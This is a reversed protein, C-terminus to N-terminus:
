INLRKRGSDTLAIPPFAHNGRCLGPFNQHIMHMVDCFLTVSDSDYRMNDYQRIFEKQKEEGPPNGPVIRPRIVESRNKILSKRVAEASYTVSFKENIYNRVEKVTAPNEYTVSIIVQNIQYRNLYSKKPKCNFANLKEAGGSLYRRLRNKVTEIHQGFIEATRGIGAKVGEKDYAISLIAIFRLKLRVDEQRERYDQLEKKDKESFNCDYLKM